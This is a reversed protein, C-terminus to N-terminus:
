LGHGLSSMSRPKSSDRVELVIMWRHKEGDDDDGEGESDDLLPNVVTEM